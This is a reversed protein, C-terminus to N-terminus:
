RMLRGRGDSRSNLTRRDGAPVNGPHITAGPDPSQNQANFLAELEGHLEDARGNAEAAEFANM